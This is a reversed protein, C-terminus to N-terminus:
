GMVHTSMSVVLVYHLFRSSSFFRLVIDFLKFYQCLLPFWVRLLSLQHFKGFKSCYWDSLCEVIAIYICATRSGRWCRSTYILRLFASLSNRALLPRQGFKGTLPMLGVYCIPVRKAYLVYVPLGVADETHHDGVRLQRFTLCTRCWYLM